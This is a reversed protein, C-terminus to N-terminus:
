RTIDESHQTSCAAARALLVAALNPHPGLHRAQLIEVTPFRARAADVQATLRSLVVGAFLLYPLVLLRDAGGAVAAEIQGLITPEAHEVFAIRVRAHTVESLRAAIPTLGVNDEPNATGRGVLIADPQGTGGAVQTQPWAQIMRESLVEIIRDDMGLCQGYRIRIEPHAARFTELYTPVDVTAHRGRTLFVPLAHIATVGAAICRDLADPITPETLELLGPQVLSYGRAKAQVLRTFEFFEAQGEPRSSGHGLLALAPLSVPPM